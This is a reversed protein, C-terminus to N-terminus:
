EDKNPAERAEYAAIRAKIAEQAVSRLIWNQRHEFVQRLGTTIAALAGLLAPVWRAAGTAAAVPVAAAWVLAITESTMYGVRAMRSTRRYFALQDGVYTPYAPADAAV